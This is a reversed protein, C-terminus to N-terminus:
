DGRRLRDLCILGVSKIRGKWVGIHEYNAEGEQQHDGAV